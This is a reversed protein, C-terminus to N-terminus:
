SLNLSTAPNNSRACDMDQLVQRRRVVVGVTARNCHIVRVWEGTRPEAENPNSQPVELEFPGDGTDEM